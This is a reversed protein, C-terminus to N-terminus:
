NKKCCAFLKQFATLCAAKNIKLNGLDIDVFNDILIDLGKDAFLRLTADDIKNVLWEDLARHVVNLVLQKKQLGTINKYTDVTEMCLRVLDFINTMDLEEDQFKECIEDYLKKAYADIDIINTGSM